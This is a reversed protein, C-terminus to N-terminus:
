SSGQNKDKAQIFQQVVQLNAQSESTVTLIVLSVLRLRRRMNFIGINTKKASVKSLTIMFVFVSSVSIGISYMSM